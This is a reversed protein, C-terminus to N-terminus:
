ARRRTIAELLFWVWLSATFVPLIWRSLPNKPLLFEVVTLSALLSIAALAIYRIRLSRPESRTVVPIAATRSEAVVTAREGATLVADLLSATKVAPDHSILARSSEADVEVLLVGSVRQLAQIVRSTAPATM